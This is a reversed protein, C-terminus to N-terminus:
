IVYCMGFLGFDVFFLFWRCGLSFGEMGLFRGWKREKGLGLFM